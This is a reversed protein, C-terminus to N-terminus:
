IFRIEIKEAEIVKDIKLPESNDDFHYIINNPEIVIDYEASTKEHFPARVHCKGDM